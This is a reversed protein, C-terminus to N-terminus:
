ARRVHIEAPGRGLVDPEASKEIAPEPAPDSVIPEVNPVFEFLFMGALARQDQSSVKSIELQQRGCMRQVAELYAQDMMRLAKDGTVGQHREDALARSHLDNALVLRRALHQPRQHAPVQDPNRKVLVGLAGLRNPNWEEALQRRRWAAEIAEGHNCARRHYRHKDDALGVPAAVYDLNVVFDLLLPGAVLIRVSDLIRRAILLRDFLHDARM